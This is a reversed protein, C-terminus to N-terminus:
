VVCVLGLFPYGYIFNQIALVLMNYIISKNKGGPCLVLVHILRSIKGRQHHVHMCWCICNDVKVGM